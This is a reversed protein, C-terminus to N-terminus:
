SVLFGAATDEVRGEEGMFPAGGEFDNMGWLSSVQGWSCSPRGGRPGAGRARRSGTLRAATSSARGGWSV